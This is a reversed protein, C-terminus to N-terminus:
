GGGVQDLQPFPHRRLRYLLEDINGGKVAIFYDIPNGDADLETWARWLGNGDMVYSSVNGDGDVGSLTLNIKM